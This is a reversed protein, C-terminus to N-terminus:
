SNKLMKLFKTKSLVKFEQIRSRHFIRQIPMVGKADYYDAGSAEIKNRSEIMLEVLEIMKAQAEPPVSGPIPFCLAGNFQVFILEKKASNTLTTTAFKM